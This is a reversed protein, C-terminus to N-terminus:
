HQWLISNVELPVLASDLNPTARPTYDSSPRNTQVAAIYVITGDTTTKDQLPVMPVIESEMQGLSSAYLEVNISDSTLEGLSVTTKFTYGSESNEIELGSFRVEPWHANIQQKSQEIREGLKGGDTSRHVYAEAASLYYKKTYEIVTRAASYTPVLQAMSERIRGLWRRPIGESDRDYFEPIIEEELIKYLVEAEAADWAPDEGHENGDGIAWGVEPNFAEAWWGDLESLNLGGNPLVKMGSTGSAEWPRRPTNIWVDVGKVLQQTLVMDYDSLMVVKGRVDVRKVFDNWQKVLVHGSEDQPHAKGALILQVPHEQNNLVRALRDPDHLLLNPRKYSAFRRAFGLTLVHPDFINEAADVQDQNAGLEASQRGHRLRADTILQCRADNRLNWLLSDDIQRIADLSKDSSGSWCQKGCAGSWVDAVKTSMWTPMHVGNTVSGIPIETEPWRPFIPQFIKRSVSGHLKSVGNVAGCTRVALFAMNFAENSDKPNQRGLALFDDMSIGLRNEAYNRLSIEVLRPPFKDFGAPVATHTTFLNGPRTVTLAHSFDVNNDMMYSRARELVAFAAHGENLHCVEPSIKLERLLRWGGIGLIIEQKLRIEPGGGYLDGTICRHSAINEPDNSDLLYLKTKGVRAEWTRLWLSAGPLVVQLRLWEGNERRVPKIPLNGPSNTPYLEIQNGDADFEQRFYGQSYLLGVGVVPVGLDDAAKLQDGAVNGLGGSYIPLSESLMYEMSFYAIKTLKSNSHNAAFWSKANTVDGQAAAQGKLNQRVDPDALLADMKEVSVTQLILWPNRTTEWLSQDLRSWFNETWNNHARGLNLAADILADYDTSGSHLHPFTSETMLQYIGLVKLMEVWALKLKEHPASFSRLV